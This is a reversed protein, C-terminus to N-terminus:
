STTYLLHRTEIPARGRISMRFKRREATNERMFYKLLMPTKEARNTTNRISPTRTVTKEDPKRVDFPRKCRSCAGSEVHACELGAKKM